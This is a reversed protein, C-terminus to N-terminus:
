RMGRSDEEHGGRLVSGGGAEHFHPHLRHAKMTRITRAGCPATPVSVELQRLGVADDHLERATSMGTAVRGPPKPQTTSLARLIRPDDRCRCRAPCGISAARRSCIKLKPHRYRLRRRVGARSCSASNRVAASSRIAELPLAAPREPRAVRRHPLLPPGSGRHRGSHDMNPRCLVAAQRSAKGPNM